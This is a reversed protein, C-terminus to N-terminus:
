ESTMRGRRKNILFAAGTGALVAGLLALFGALSGDVGTTALDGDQGGADSGGNGGGDGNGPSSTPATTSTGDTSTPQPTPEATGTPEGTPEPAVGVTFDFSGSVVELQAIGNEIGVLTVGEADVAALGGELVTKSKDDVPVYVTASSNAPVEVHYEFSGNETTWDSVLTGYNTTFAANAWTVRGDADPQPKLVSHQYGAQTPDQNVGAVTNYIWESVAGYAYHNYSNMSVDGFGDELTYSNWREWYTTAGQDVTYLWSPYANSLVLDYAADLQGGGSLAPLIAPTGLFGTTLAPAGDEGALSLQALREALGAQTGDPYLGFDLVIAYAAQTELDAGEIQAGGSPFYTSVFTSKWDAHWATYKEADETKGLAEAAEAMLKITHVKYAQMVFETDTKAFSLWDGLVFGRPGENLATAYASMQEYNVELIETDGYAKWLEYPVIISADTWPDSTGHVFDWGSHYPAFRPYQGDAFQADALDLETYKQLFNRVDATMSATSTFVQIDGLWGMREDRAPTDTPISNFNGRLGNITNEHLANLGDSSTELDMTLETASSLVHATVDDAGVSNADFGDFGSVELYRFGHMTFTPEFSGSGSDGITYFDNVKASRFNENYITGAPGDATASSDNLMEGYNLEVTSGAPGTVDIAVNGVINKGFDFVINGNADVTRSVPSVEEVKKIASASDGVVKLGTPLSITSPAVWDAEDFGGQSWGAVAPELRADYNEGDMLNSDTIPGEDFYSWDPGTAVSETTGDTYTIELNALLAPQAGYPKQLAGFSGSYWGDNLQAGIANDGSAIQETVDYANYLATKYFDSTGPALYSDGVKEGNLEFEYVGLASAYLHASEVTKGATSFEERFLGDSPSTDVEQAFNDTVTIWGDAIKAGDAEAFASASPDATLKGQTEELKEAADPVTLTVDTYKASTGNDNYLGVLGARVMQRNGPLEFEAVAAGDLSIKWKSGSPFVGGGGVLSATLTHEAAPDFGDLAVDVNVPDFGRPSNPNEAAGNDRTFDRIGQANGEHLKLRYQGDVEAVNLLIFDDDVGNFTLGASGQLIQFRTSVDFTTALSRDDALSPEANPQTIWQAGNWGTSGDTAKLGTRFSSTATPLTEGHEDTVQVAWFYSTKPALAPGTYPVASSANSEVVGSDWVDGEGNSAKDASTAVVLRYATQAAGRHAADMQWSFSPTSDVLIPSEQRDVQLAVTTTNTPAATALQASM